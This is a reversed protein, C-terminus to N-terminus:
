SLFLSFPLHAPVRILRERLLVAPVKRKDEQQKNNNKECVVYFVKESREALPSQSHLVKKHDRAPVFFTCPGVLWCSLVIVM